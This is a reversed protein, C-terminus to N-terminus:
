RDIVKTSRWAQEVKQLRDTATKRLKVATAANLANLLALTATFSDFPGPSEADITFHHASVTAIPSAPNDTLSIVSADAAAFRQVTEILWNDYRRIDMAVIVDQNDGLALRRGVTVPNGDLLEVNPRLFSLENTYQIGVGRCADSPLVVIHRRVDALLLVAQNFSGQDVRGFTKSINRQETQDVQALLDGAPQKAPQEKIRDAAPRLSSSLENQVERQLAAFGSLGLKMCLRAVTGAGVDAREMLEAMTRFAVFQPDETVIKVVRTEAETFTVEQLRVWLTKAV